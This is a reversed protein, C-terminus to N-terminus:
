RGRPDVLRAPQGRRRIAARPRRVRADDRPRDGRGDGRLQGRRGRRSRLVAAASHRGPLRNREHHSQLVCERHAADDAMRGPGGARWDNAIRRATEFETARRLNALFPGGEIVLGSYDRWVDPYGIKTRFADLKALAQRRTSDSMWDLATLRERLVARLHDVMALARVKAQPSFTREVYAQGLAHGLSGDARALCRKWRPLQEKVGVLVQRFRFSEADFRAGLWPAAWSVLRARLYVRWDALPVDALLRNVEKFFRPQAVNLESIPPLGAVRFYDGWAFAPAIGELEALTMKHYTAKPDRLEVRTMSATALATEITMSTRADAQAGAAPEGLLELLRALHEVYAQRLRVSATDTKTYHDRDPLGLGGQSVIAIVQTSQKADQDARFGFLASVGARHLRAVAAVLDTRSAIADIRDLEPQLPLAGDTDARGLGHM